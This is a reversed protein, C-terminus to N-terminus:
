LGINAKSLPTIFIKFNFNNLLYGGGMALVPTIDKLYFIKRTVVSYIIRVKQRRLLIAIRM